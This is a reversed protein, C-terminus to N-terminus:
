RSQQICMFNMQNGVQVNGHLTM